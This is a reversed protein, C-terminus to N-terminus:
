TRITGIGAAHLLPQLVQLRSQIVLLRLNDEAASAAIPRHMQYTLQVEGAKALVGFPQNAEAVDRGQVIHELVLAEDGEMGRHGAVQRHLRLLVWGRLGQVVQEEAEGYGGVLHSRM